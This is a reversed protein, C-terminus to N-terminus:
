WKPVLHQKLKELLAVCYKATITACKVPFEVLLVGNGDSFVTV